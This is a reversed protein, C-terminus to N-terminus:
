ASAVPAPLLTAIELFFEAVMEEFQLGSLVRIGDEHRFTAEDEEGLFALVGAILYDVRHSILDLAYKELLHRTLILLAPHFTETAVAVHLMVLHDLWVLFAAKRLAAKKHDPKADCCSLRAVM